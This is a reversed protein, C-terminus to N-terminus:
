ERSSDTRPLMAAADQQAVVRHPWPGAEPEWKPEIENRAPTTTRWQLQQGLHIKGTVCGRRRGLVSMEHCRKRHEGRQHRCQADAEVEAPAGTRGRRGPFHSRAPRRQAPERDGEDRQRNSPTDPLAQQCFAAAAGRGYGNPSHFKNLWQLKEPTSRWFFQLPRRATQRSQPTVLVLGGRASPERPGKCADVIVQPRVSRQEHGQGM